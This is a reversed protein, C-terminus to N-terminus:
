QGSRGPNVMVICDQRKDQSDAALRSESHDLLRNERRLGVKEQNHNCSAANLVLSDKWPIKDVRVRDASGPRGSRIFNFHQDFITLFQEVEAHFCIFLIEHENELHYETINGKKGWLPLDPVPNGKSTILDSHEKKIQYLSLLVHRYLERKVAYAYGTTTPSHQSTSIPSRSPWTHSRVQPSHTNTVMPCSHPQRNFM